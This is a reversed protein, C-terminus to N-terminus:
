SIVGHDARHQEVVQRTDEDQIAKLIANYKRERSLLDKRRERMKDLEHGIAELENQVNDEIVKLVDVRSSPKTHEPLGVVSGPQVTRMVSPEPSLVEESNFQRIWEAIKM